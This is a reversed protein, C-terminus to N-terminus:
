HSWSVYWFSPCYWVRLWLNWPMLGSWCICWSCSSGALLMPNNGLKPRHRLETDAVLRIAAMRARKHMNFYTWIRVRKLALLSRGKASCKTLCTGDTTRVFNPTRETGRRNAEIGDLSWVAAFQNFDALQTLAHWVGHWAFGLHNQSDAKLLKTQFINSDKVLYFFDASFLRRALDVKM